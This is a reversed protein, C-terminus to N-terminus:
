SILNENSEDGKLPLLVTATAGIGSCNAKLSIHGGHSDVIAKAVPLGLGSGPAKSRNSRYFREFVQQEENDSIGQGSDIIKLVLVPGREFVKVETTADQNSYGIANELLIMVVQRIRREDALVKIDSPAEFHLTQQKDSAKRQYLSILDAVLKSINFESKALKLEGASSRAVLMLDEILATTHTVQNVIAELVDYYDEPNPSRSRMLVEAEGRIITLPTRVEHGLDALFQRRQKDVKALKENSLELAQTRQMVKEELSQNVRNLERQQQELKAAMENLGDALQAFEKDQQAGIRHALQGQSFLKLASVLQDTGHNLRRLFFWFVAIAFASTVAVLVGLIVNNREALQRSDERVFRAQQQEEKVAARILENFQSQIGQQQLLEYIAIAQSHQQNSVLLRIEQSSTIIHEVKQAIKDLVKLETSANVSPTMDVKKLVNARVDFLASRLRQENEERQVPNIVVGSHVIDSTSVLKEFSYLAIESYKNLIDHILESRKANLEYRNATDFYLFTLLVSTLLMTLLAFLIKNSLRGQTQKVSSM